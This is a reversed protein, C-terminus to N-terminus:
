GGLFPHPLILILIGRVLVRVAGKFRLIRLDNFILIPMELNMPLIAPRPTLASDPHPRKRNGIRDFV